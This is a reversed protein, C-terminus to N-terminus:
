REEVWYDVETTRWGSRVIVTSVVLYLLPAAILCFALVIILFVPILLIPATLVALRYRLSRPQGRRRVQFITTRRHGRDDWM